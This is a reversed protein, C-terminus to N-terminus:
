AAPDEVDATQQADEQQHSGSFYEDVETAIDRRPSKDEVPILGTFNGEADLMAERVDIQKNLETILQKARTLSSNDIELSNVTEEARLQELHAELQAISVELDKKESMMGDLKQQNARLKDRQAMM